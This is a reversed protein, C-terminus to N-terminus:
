LIFFSQCQWVSLVCAVSCAVSVSLSAFRLSMHSLEFKSSTQDTLQSTLTQLISDAGLVCTSLVCGVHQAGAVCGSFVGSIMDVLYQAFIQCTHAPLFLHAVAFFDSFILNLM